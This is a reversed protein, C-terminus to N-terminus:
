KALEMETDRIKLRNVITGELVLCVEFSTDGHRTTGLVATVVGIAGEYFGKRKIVVSSGYKIGVARKPAITEVEKTFNKNKSM